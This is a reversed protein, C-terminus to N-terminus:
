YLIIHQRYFFSLYILYMFMITKSDVFYLIPPIHTNLSAIFYASNAAIDVIPLKDVCCNNKISSFERSKEFSNLFTFIKPSKLKLKISIVAINM